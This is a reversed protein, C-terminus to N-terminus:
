QETQARNIDVFAMHNNKLMQTGKKGDPDRLSLVLIRFLHMKKVADPDGIKEQLLENKAM